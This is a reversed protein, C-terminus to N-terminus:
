RLSMREIYLDIAVEIAKAANPQKRLWKIHDPRLKTSYPLKKWKIPKRGAGSRIGGSVM